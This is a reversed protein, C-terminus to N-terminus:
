GKNPQLWSMVRIISSRPSMRVSWAMINNIIGPMVLRKQKRLGRYAAAAVDKVNMANYKFMFTDEMNSDDGFGTKTPGPCLCMITVGKKRVEDWLAESFSLVYAKSAYYVASNPGPQFSATSGLNMIAGRKREIMGRVFLHALETLATVNLQLMNSYRSMEGDAFPGYQGFGANNILVDVTMGAATLEDFLQQPANPKSLDMPIVTVNTGHKTTLEDALEQLKSETRAVLILDSGDVAFFPALERGIGSSAGTILVTENNV